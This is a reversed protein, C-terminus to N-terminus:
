SLKGSHVETFDKQWAKEGHGCGSADQCSIFGDGQFHRFGAMFSPISRSLTAPVFWGSSGNLSFNEASAAVLNRSM